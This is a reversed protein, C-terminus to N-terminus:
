KPRSPHQIRLDYVEEIKMLRELLSVRLSPGKFNFRTVPPLQQPDGALILNTSPGAIARLPINVEPEDAHGAEDIFIHSFHGRPVELSQLIGATCCTALVIRAKLVAPLDLFVFVDHDNIISSDLVEEPIGDPKRWLANIRLIGKVNFGHNVLLCNIHDTAANSKACILIRRASNRILQIVAEIITATKGTGPRFFTPM